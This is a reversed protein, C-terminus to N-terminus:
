RRAGRAVMAVPDGGNWLTELSEGDEIDTGEVPEVGEEGLHASSLVDDGDVVLLVDVPDACAPVDLELSPLAKLRDMVQEARPNGVPPEVGELEVAQCLAEVEDEAAPDQVPDLGGRPEQSQQA